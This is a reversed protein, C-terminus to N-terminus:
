PPAKGWGSLPWGATATILGHLRRRPKIQWSTLTTEEPHEHRGARQQQPINEEARNHTHTHICTFHYDCYQQIAQPATLLRTKWRQGWSAPGCTSLLVHRSLMRQAAFGMEQLSFLPKTWSSFVTRVSMFGLRARLVCTPPVMKVPVCVKWWLKYMLSHVVPRSEFELRLSFLIM